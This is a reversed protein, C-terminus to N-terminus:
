RQSELLRALTPEDDLNYLKRFGSSAAAGFKQEDLPIFSTDIPDIYPLKADLVIPRTDGAARFEHIQEFAAKLSANDTATLGIAGFSRAMGAWDAGDLDTGYLGLKGKIQEHRIFGFAKNELVVNVVPLKYRVETLIEQNVMAFGGDGSITWVDRDPHSLAASLGAPVAYGMTGYWPSMTFRQDSGVPLQRLSWATNNGVDLGFIARDSANRAVERIVSEAALGNSDDDALKDLWALWNERNLRAAKEFQQAQENAPHKALEDLVQAGDAVFAISAELQNGIDSPNTNVQIITKDHPMFRGFPYNTGAFLILDALQSAEFAPKDGLRGRTGMYNPWDQPVIGTAPATSLVPMHFHEAFRMVSDAKGHMGQGIWLVPRKAKALADAAMDLEHQDLSYSVRANSMLPTKSETYEIQTGTLDEPLIVVAVGRKTYAAKIADEIVSPIQEATAVQRNYVAVDSFIPVESLEQFFHTNQFQTTVQGVLALVPVNDMKADYLGNLMHVSGPGASAFAVGIKGDLKADAAAALAGAEEHRVQIYRIGDREKWLGEVVNNISDAPIGYVHDVGWRELVKALAQGATITAM